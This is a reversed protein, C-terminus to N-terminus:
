RAGASTLLLPLRDDPARMQRYSQTAQNGRIALTLGCILVPEDTDIQFVHSVTAFNGWFRVLGSPAEEVFNGFREFMPHLTETQLTHFLDEITDPAEGCWKSGNSTIQTAM